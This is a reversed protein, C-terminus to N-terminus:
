MQAMSCALLDFGALCPPTSSLSYKGTLLHSAAPLPDWRTAQRHAPRALTQSCATSSKQHRLFAPKAAQKHNFATNTQATQESHHVARQILPNQLLFPHHSRFLPKTGRLLSAASPQTTAETSEAGSSDQLVPLVSCLSPMRGKRLEARAGANGRHSIGLFFLTQWQAKGQTIHFHSTQRHQLGPNVAHERGQSTASSHSARSGMSSCSGNFSLNM